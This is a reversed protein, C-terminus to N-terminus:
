DNIVPVLKLQENLITAHFRQGVQFGEDSAGLSPAKGRRGPPQAHRWGRDAAVHRHEFAVQANAQKLAATAAQGQGLVALTEQHRNGIPDFGDLRGNGAHRRAPLGAPTSLTLMAKVKPSSWTSGNSGAKM